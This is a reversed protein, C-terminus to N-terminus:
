RKDIQRQNIQTKTLRRQDGCALGNDLCEAFVALDRIRASTDCL